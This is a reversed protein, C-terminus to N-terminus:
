KTKVFKFTSTQSDSKLQVFYVGDSFSSIDFTEVHKSHITKADSSYVVQGIQNTIVFTGRIPNELDINIKIMDSAPNPTLEFGTLGEIESVASISSVNFGFSVKKNNNIGNYIEYGLGDKITIANGFGDGYDDRMVVTYCGLESLTVEETFQKENPLVGSNYVVTGNADLISVQSSDSESFKDTKVSFSIRNEVNLKKAEIAISTNNNETNDDNGIFKVEINNKGEDLELDFSVETVSGAEITGDYNFTKSSSGNVFLEFEPNNFTSSTANIVSFTGSFEDCAIEPIQLAEIMLDSGEAPDVINLLVESATAVTIANPYLDASVSSDKPSIMKLTPFGKINYNTNNIIYIEDGNLNLVPYKTGELWNGQTNSGIGKLADLTTTTDCELYLVQLQNTGEPGFADYMKELYHTQHLAWCPGCWTTSFDILVAKGENLYGYLHQDNGNIDKFDFDPAKQAFSSVLTIATLLTFVFRKM